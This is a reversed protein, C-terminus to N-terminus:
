VRQIRGLILWFIFLGVVLLIITSKMPAFINQVGEGMAQTITQSNGPAPGVGILAKLAGLVGLAQTQGTQQSNATAKNQQPAANNGKFWSSVTGFISSGASAAGATKQMVSQNSNSPTTFWNGISDVVSKSTNSVSSGADSFWDGIGGFWGPSDPQTISAPMTIGGYSQLPALKYSPIEPLVFPDSTNFGSPTWNSEIKFDDFSFFDFDSM